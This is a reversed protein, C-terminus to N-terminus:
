LQNNKIFRNGEPYYNDFSNYKVKNKESNNNKKNHFLIKYLCKFIKLM